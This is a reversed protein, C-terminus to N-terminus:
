LRGDLCVIPLILAQLVESRDVFGEPQPTHSIFFFEAYLRVFTFVESDNKGTHQQIESLTNKLSFCKSKKWQRKQNSMIKTGKLINLKWGSIKEPFADDGSEGEGDGEEGRGGGGAGVAHSRQIERLNVLVKAKFSPCIEGVVLLSLGMKGTFKGFSVKKYIHKQIFASIAKCLM